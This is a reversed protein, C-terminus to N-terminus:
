SNEKREKIVKKVTTLSCKCL